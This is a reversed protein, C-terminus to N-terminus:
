KKKQLQRALLDALISKLLSKRPNRLYACDEGECLKIEESM